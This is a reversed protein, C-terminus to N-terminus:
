FAEIGEHLRESRSAGAAAQHSPYGTAQQGDEGTGGSGCGVTVTAMALGTSVSRRLAPVAASGAKALGEKRGSGIAAAADTVGGMSLTEKVL